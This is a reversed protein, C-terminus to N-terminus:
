ATSKIECWVVPLQHDLVLWVRGDFYAGLMTVDCGYDIWPGWETSEHSYASVNIIKVRKAHEPVESAPLFGAFQIRKFEDARTAVDVTQGCMAFKGLQKPNLYVAGYNYNRRICPMAKTLIMLLSVM